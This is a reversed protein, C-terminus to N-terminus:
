HSDKENVSGIYAKADAPPVAGASVPPATKGSEPTLSPLTVYFTSGAGEKSEVWIKGGLRDVMRRVMALGIGEGPAIQGHLRQFAVFMKPLYAAPIGLGNDRVYYTVAHADESATSGIEIRGPRNPDLYNVANGVLNGFIQEVATSDAAADPLGHVIVQVNKARISSQMAEVVRGVVAAVDVPVHKYEVRGARSLRLLADIINSSRSVATQIFRVSDLIDGDILDLMRRRTESPTGPDNSQERLEECSRALEKSFGQLNVLPSRLDHSVSYVFTEIEQTKFRLDNNTRGLEANTNALEVTQKELEARQQQEIAEAERLRTAAMHFAEDLAGIEDTGAVHRLLPERNALNHANDALAELRLAINRTFWALIVAALGITAIVAIGVFWYEQRRLSDAEEVRQRDLRQEEALIAALTDHLREVGREAAMTGVLKAAEATKGSRILEREEAVRNLIRVATERFQKARMTQDPNDTVLAQLRDFAPLVKIEAVALDPTFDPNNIIIAGRIQAVTEAVLRYSEEATAIVEKTHLAWTNAQDASVQLRLSFVLIVLQLGIPLCVLLLGKRFISINSGVVM